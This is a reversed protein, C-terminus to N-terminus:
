AELFEDILDDIDDGNIITNGKKRQENKGDLISKFQEKSLGLETAIKEIYDKETDDFNGDAEAIFLLNNILEEYILNNDPFKKKVLKILISDLNGINKGDALARLIPLEEVTLNTIDRISDTETKDVNGDKSAVQHGLISIILDFFRESDWMKKLAQKENFDESQTDATDAEVNKKVATKTKEGKNGRKTLISKIRKETLGLKLAIEKIYNKGADDSFNDDAEAVYILNNILQEYVANNDPFKMVIMQPLIDDLGRNLVAPGILAYAVKAEESTDPQFRDQKLDFSARPLNSIEDIAKVHKKGVGGSLDATVNALTFFAIDIFRQSCYLQRLYADYPVGAFDAEYDPLNRMVEAVQIDLKKGGHIATFEEDKKSSLYGEKRLHDLSKWHSYDFYQTKLWEGTLGWLSRIYQQWIIKEVSMLASLGFRAPISVLGMILSSLFTLVFIGSLAEVLAQSQAMAAGWGGLFIFGSAMLFPFSFRLCLQSINRYSLKKPSGNYKKHQNAKLVRKPLEQGSISDILDTLSVDLSPYKENLKQLKRRAEDLLNGEIMMSVAEKKVSHRNIYRLCNALIERENEAQQKEEIRKAQNQEKNRLREAERELRKQEEREFYTPDDCAASTACEWVLRKSKYTRGSSVRVSKLGRSPNMSVGMGSKGAKKWEERQRMHPQPRRLGCKTCTRTAYSAM